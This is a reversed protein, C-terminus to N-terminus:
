SISRIPVRCSVTDMCSTYVAKLKHLNDEEASSAMKAEAPISNIIKLLIRQKTLVSGMGVLLRVKNNDSVETFAGLLGRDEPISHSSQWGGASIDTM